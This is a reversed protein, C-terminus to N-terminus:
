RMCDSRQTFASAASWVRRQVCVLDIYIPSLIHGASRFGPVDRMKHVSFTRTFHLCFTALLNNM